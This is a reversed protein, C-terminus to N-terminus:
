KKEWGISGKGKRLYIKDKKIERGRRLDENDKRGGERTKKM